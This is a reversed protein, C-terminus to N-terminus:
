LEKHAALIEADMTPDGSTPITTGPITNGRYFRHFTNDDMRMLYWELLM